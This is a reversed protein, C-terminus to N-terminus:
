DYASVRTYGDTLEDAAGTLSFNIPIKVTQLGLLCHDGLVKVITSFIMTKHTKAGGETQTGGHGYIFSASVQVLYVKM